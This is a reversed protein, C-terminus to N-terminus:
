LENMECLKDGLGLKEIVDVWDFNIDDKEEDFEEFGFKMNCMFLMSKLMEFIIEECM